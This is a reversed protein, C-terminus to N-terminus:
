INKHPLPIRNSVFSSVAGNGYLYIIQFAIKNEFYSQLLMQIKIDSDQIVYKLSKVSKLKLIRVYM